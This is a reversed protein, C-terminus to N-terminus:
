ISAIKWYLYGMTVITLALFVYSSVGPTGKARKNAPYILFVLVLAVGLHITRQLMANLSGFVGTYLHFLALFLSLGAILLGIVTPNGSTESGGQTEKM